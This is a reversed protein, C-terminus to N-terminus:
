RQACAVVTSCTDIASAAIASIVLFFHSSHLMNATAPMPTATPASANSCIQVRPEHSVLRMLFVAQETRPSSPERADRVIASLFARALRATHQLNVNIYM